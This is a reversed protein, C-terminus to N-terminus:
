DDISVIWAEGIKKTGKEVSTNTRIESQPIYGYTNELSTQCVVVCEGRTMKPM